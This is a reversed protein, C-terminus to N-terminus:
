SLRSGSPFMHSAGDDEDDGNNETLIRDTDSVGRSRQFKLTGVLVLIDRPRFSVRLPACASLLMYSLGRSLSGIRLPHAFFSRDRRVRRQRFVRRTRAQDTQKKRTQIQIATDTDSDLDPDRTLDPDSGNLVRTCADYYWSVMAGCCWLYIMLRVLGEEPAADPGADVEVLFWVRLLLTCAAKSPICGLLDRRTLQTKKQKTVKRKDVAQECEGVM